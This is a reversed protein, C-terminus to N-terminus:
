GLEGQSAEWPWGELSCAGSLGARTIELGHVDPANVPLLKSAWVRLLGPHLKFSTLTGPHLTTTGYRRDLVPPVEPHPTSDWETTRMGPHHLKVSSRLVLIKISVWRVNSSLLVRSDLMLFSAAVQHYTLDRQSPLAM